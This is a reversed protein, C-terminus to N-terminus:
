YDLSTKTMRKISIQIKSGSIMITSRPEKRTNNAKSTFKYVVAGNYDLQQSLMHSRIKSCM